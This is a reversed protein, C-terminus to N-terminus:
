IQAKGGDKWSLAVSLSLLHFSGSLAVGQVLHLSSSLCTPAPQPCFSTPLTTGWKGQRWQLHAILKSGRFDREVNGTRVLPCYKIYECQTNSHTTPAPNNKILQAM